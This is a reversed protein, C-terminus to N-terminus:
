SRDTRVAARIAGPRRPSSLRRARDTQALDGCEFALVVERDIQESDIPVTTRALIVRERPTSPIGSWPSVPTTSGRSRASSSRAPHSRDARRDRSEAALRQRVGRGRERGRARSGIKRAPGAATELPSRRSLRPSFSMRDAPEGSDEEIQVNAPAIERSVLDM